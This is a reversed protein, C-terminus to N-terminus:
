QFRTGTAHGCLVFPAPNGAADFFQISADYAFSNRGTLQLTGTIEGSGELDGTTPSWGYGLLKFSYNQNGPARQWVGHEATGEAATSNPSVADSTITGDQHFTMLAAFSSLQQGTQCSVGHRTVRWVGEITPQAGEASVQSAALMAAGSALALAVKVAFFHKTLTTM